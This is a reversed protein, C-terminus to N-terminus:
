QSHHSKRRLVESRDRTNTGTDLGVEPLQSMGGNGGETTLIRFVHVLSEDRHSPRVDVSTHQVHEAAGHIVCVVFFM